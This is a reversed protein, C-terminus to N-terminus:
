DARGIYSWSQTYYWQSPLFMFLDESCPFFGSQVFEFGCVNYIHRRARSDFGTWVANIITRLQVGAKSRPFRAICLHCSRIRAIAIKDRVLLFYM